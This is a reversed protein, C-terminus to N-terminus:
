VGKRYQRVIAWRHYAAFNLHTKDLEWCSHILRDLLQIVYNFEDSDAYWATGTTVSGIVRSVIKQQWGIRL